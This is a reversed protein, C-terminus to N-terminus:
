SVDLKKGLGMCRRCELAAWGFGTILTVTPPFFFNGWNRLYFASCSTCMVRPQEYHAFIFDPKYFLVVMHINWWCLLSAPYRACLVIEEERLDAAWIVIMCFRDQWKNLALQNAPCHATASARWRPLGQVGEVQALDLCWFGARGWLCGVGRCCQTSMNLLFKWEGSGQVYPKRLSQGSDFQFGENQNGSRFQHRRELILTNEWM